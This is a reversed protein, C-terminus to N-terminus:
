PGPRLSAQELKAIRDDFAALDKSLQGNDSSQKALGAIIARGQRFMDLARPADGQEALVIAVRNQSIALDRQRDANNSDARALRDRISLSDQYTKLSGAM